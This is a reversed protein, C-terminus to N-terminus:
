VLSSCYELKPRIQHTGVRNTLGRHFDQVNGISMPMIQAQVSAGISGEAATQVLHELHGELLGKVGECFGEAVKNLSNPNSIISICLSNTHGGLSQLCSALLKALPLTQCWEELGSPRRIAREFEEFKLGESEDMAAECFILRTHTQSDSQIGLDRLALQFSDFSMKERKDVNAYREFIAKLVECNQRDFFKAVHAAISRELTDPTAPMELNSSNSAIEEHSRKTM